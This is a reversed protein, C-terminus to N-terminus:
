GSERATLAARLRALEEHFLRDRPDDWAVRHFDALMHGDLWTALPGPPRTPPELLVGDVRTGRPSEAVARANELIEPRTEAAPSWLVLLRDDVRIRHRLDPNHHGGLEAVQQWYWAQFGLMRLYARLRRARSRDTEDFLLFLSNGVLLGEEAAAVSKLYEVTLPSLGTGSLFGDPIEGRSLLFADIGVTSPGDHVVSDLGVARSLDSAAIVTFAFHAGTFDAGDLHAERLNVGCLTAGVLSAHALEAGILDAGYLHAREFTSDSLDCDTLLAEMFNAYRFDGGRLTALTLDARVFSAGDARVDLLRSSRLDAGDLLADRLDTGDLLAERLRTRRLDLGQLNSRRLDAGDLNAGTLQADRLDEGSLDKGSLQRRFEVVGDGTASLRRRTM